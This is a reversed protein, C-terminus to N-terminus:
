GEWAMRALHEHAEDASVPSRWSGCVWAQRSCSWVAYGISQWGRGRRRRLLHVSGAGKSAVVPSASDSALNHSASPVALTMQSIEREITQTTTM